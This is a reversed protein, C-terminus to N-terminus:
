SSIAPDSTMRRLALTKPPRPKAFIREVASTSAFEHGPNDEQERGVNNQEVDSAWRLHKVGRSGRAHVVFQTVNRLMRENCRPLTNWKDGFQFPRLELGAVENKHGAPTRWEFWPRTRKVWFRQLTEHLVMISAPGDHTHTRAGKRETTGPQEVAPTARGVMFQLVFEGCSVGARM